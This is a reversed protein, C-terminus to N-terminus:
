RSRFTRFRVNRESHITLILAAARAFPREYLRNM